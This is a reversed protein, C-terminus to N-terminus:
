SPTTFALNADSLSNPISSGRTRPSLTWLISAAAVGFTLKSAFTVMYPLLHVFSPSVIPLVIFFNATWVAVLGGVMLSLIQGFGNSEGVLLRTAATLIIGLAAALGMHIVLGIAASGGVFGAAAAVGRAIENADGGTLTSYAWVVGIEAFGGTLGVALGTRVIRFSRSDSITKSFIPM